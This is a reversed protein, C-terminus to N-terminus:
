IPDTSVESGFLSPWVRPVFHSGSQIEECITSLHILLYMQGFTWYDSGLLLFQRPILTRTQSYISPYTICNQLHFHVNESVIVTKCQIVCMFSGGTVSFCNDARREGKSALWGCLIVDLGVNDVHTHCNTISNLWGVCLMLLHLVSVNRNTWSAIKFKLWHHLIDELILWAQAVLNKM